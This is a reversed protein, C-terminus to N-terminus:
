LIQRFGNEQREAQRIVGDASLGRIGGMQFGASNLADVTWINCIRPFYYAHPSRILLGDGWPSRGITVPRGGVDLESCANLAAAFSSGASEPM